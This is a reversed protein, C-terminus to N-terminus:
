QPPPIAPPASPPPGAPPTRTTTFASSFEELSIAGDANRDASAFSQAVVPHAQAEAQTVKGDKDADLKEFISSTSPEAQNQPPEAPAQAFAVGCVLAAATFLIHSKM